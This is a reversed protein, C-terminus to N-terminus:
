SSAGMAPARKAFGALVLDEVEHARMWDLVPRAAAPANAALAAELLIRADALEKQAEWNHVALTLARRPDRHLTLEYRAQERLHVGDGRREGAEFRAALEAMDPALRGGGGAAQLALAHRLLLGDVRLHPALLRVAERPRGDEILFDAYAGLLYTDGPDLRLAERFRDGALAREGRRAAMEGLSGLV